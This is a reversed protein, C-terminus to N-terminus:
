APRHHSFFRFCYCIFSGGFPPETNGASQASWESRQSTWGQYGNKVHHADDVGSSRASSSFNVENLLENIPAVRVTGVSSRSVLSAVCDRLPDSSPHRHSRLRHKFIPAPHNAMVRIILRNSCGANNHHSSTGWKRFTAANGPSEGNVWVGRWHPVVM